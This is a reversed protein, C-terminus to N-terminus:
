SRPEPSGTSEPRASFPPLPDRNAFFEIGSQPAVDLLDANAEVLGVSCQVRNFIAKSHTNGHIFNGNLQSNDVLYRSGIETWNTERGLVESDLRPYAENWERDLNLIQSEENMIFTMSGLDMLRRSGRNLAASINM